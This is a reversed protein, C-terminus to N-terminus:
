SDAVFSISERSSFNKVFPFWYVTVVDSVGTLFLVAGLTARPRILWGIMLLLVLALSLGLFPETVRRRAFVAVLFGVGVISSYAIWWGQSVHRTRQRATLLASDGFTV